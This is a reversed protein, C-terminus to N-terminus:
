GREEAAEKNTIGYIREQTRNEVDEIKDESPECFWTKCGYLV